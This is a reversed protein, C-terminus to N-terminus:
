IFTDPFFIAKFARLFISKYLKIKYIDWINQEIKFKKNM